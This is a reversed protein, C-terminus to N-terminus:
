IVGGLWLGALTVGCGALSSWWCLRWETETAAALAVRDALANRLTVALELELDAIRARLWPKTHQKMKGRM